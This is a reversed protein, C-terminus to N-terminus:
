DACLAEVQDCVPKLRCSGCDMMLRNLAHELSMTVAEARDLLAQLARYDFHPLTIFVTEVAEVAPHGLYAEGYVRGAKYFDLGKEIADGSVRVQERSQATSIRPMYGQPNVHYRIYEVSRLLNYLKHEEGAFEERLAVLTVRAYPSDGRLVPLDPGYLTVRKEGGTSAHEAGGESMGKRVLEGCCTCLVGSVAPLGGGGLEIAADKKLLLQGESSDWAFSAAEVNRTVRDAEYNDLLRYFEEILGDYLRM